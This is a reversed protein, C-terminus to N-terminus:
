QEHSAEKRDPLLDELYAWRTISGTLLKPKDSVLYGHGGDFHPFEVLAPKNEPVEPAAHWASNIRWQAGAEFDEVAHYWEAGFDGQRDAYEEAAKEIEERTM